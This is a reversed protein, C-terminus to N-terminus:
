VRASSMTSSPYEGISRPASPVGVEGPDNGERAAPPERQERCDDRGSREGGGAACVARRVFRLRPQEDAREVAVRLRETGRPRLRLRERLEDRTLDHEVARLPLEPLAGPEARSAATRTSAASVVRITVIVARAPLAVAAAARAFATASWTRCTTPARRGGPASAGIRTMSLASGGVAATPLPRPVSTAM